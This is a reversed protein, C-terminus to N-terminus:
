EYKRFCRRRSYDARCAPKTQSQAIGTGPEFLGENCKRRSQKLGGDSLIHGGQFVAFNNATSTQTCAVSPQLNERQLLVLYYGGITRAGSTYINGTLGSNQLQSTFNWVTVISQNPYGPHNPSVAYEIADSSQFNYNGNMDEVLM